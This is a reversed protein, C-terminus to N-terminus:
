VDRHVLKANDVRRSQIRPLRVLSAALAGGVTLPTILVTAYV